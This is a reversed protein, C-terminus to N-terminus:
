LDKYLAILLKPLEKKDYYVIDEFARDNCVNAWNFASFITFIFFPYSSLAMTASINYMDIFKRLYFSLNIKEELNNVKIGKINSVENNFLTSCFDSFSNYPNLNLDKIKSEMYDILYGKGNVLYSTSITEVVMDSANLYYKLFFRISFYMFAEYREKNTTLGITRILVKNFMRAWITASIRMADPSPTYTKDLLKLYLYGPICLSYLKKIDISYDIEETERDKVETVYKTVNIIIREKNDKRHKIYPLCEPLNYDIPLKVLIIDGSNIANVAKLTIAEKFIKLMSKIDTELKNNLIVADAESALIKFIKNQLVNGKDLYEFIDSETFTRMIYERGKM